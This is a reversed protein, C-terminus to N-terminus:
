RAQDCPGSFRQCIVGVSITKTRRKKSNATTEAGCGPSKSPTAESRRPPATCQRRAGAFRPIIRPDDYPLNRSTPHLPSHTTDSVHLTFIDDIHRSINAVTMQQYLDQIALNIAFTDNLRTVLRMVLLSHGGLEFFDTQTSIQSAEVNLLQAWIECVAARHRNAASRLPGATRHCGGGAAGKQQDQWQSDAAM